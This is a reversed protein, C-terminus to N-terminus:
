RSAPATPPTSSTGCSARALRVVVRARLVHGPQLGLLPGDRVGAGAPAAVCTFGLEKIYGLKSEVQAFTAWDTAHEDGRGAFTGVHFQYILFNEFRPPDFPAWPYPGSDPVLSANRGDGTRTLESSLVDRAAADLRELVTATRPPSGSGTSSGPRSM